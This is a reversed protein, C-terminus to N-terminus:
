GRGGSKGLAEWLGNLYAIGLARDYLGYGPRGREGFIMRGHDPRLWGEFGVEHYAKMIEFLDLSGASSLHASEHFSGDPHRLLNRVHGFAIRGRAGFKRVMRPIDNAPGAGLSGSCLTLCNAPSDVLGLIRELNEECTAIRPLGFLSWPPDDPHIALAIGRAEAFPVLAALFYRLNEFLREEGFGRYAALTTELLALREPEWGPLVFAADGGALEAVLREPGIGALRFPDYALATSGDPLPLALDTRLWDFVPMFNYCVVRVGEASLAELSARYAEIYRDRSPLGLKIDEHVNVSEIVELRLGAAEVEERLSRVRARPWAEGAPLDFLAGVVGAVGPIQRIHELPIPDQGPGFWRFGMKM